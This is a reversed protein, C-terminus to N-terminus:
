AAHGTNARQPASDPGLGEDRGEALFHLLPNCGYEWVDQRTLLYGWSHFGPAPEGGQYIGQTLYHRLPSVHSKEQFQAAYWAPDFFGSDAALKEALRLEDMAAAMFPQFSTEVLRYRLALHGIAARLYCSGPIYELGKALTRLAESVQGRAEQARALLLWNWGHINFQDCMFALSTEAGSHEGLLMCALAHIKSLHYRNVRSGKALRKLGQAALDRAQAYNKQQLLFQGFYWYAKYNGSYSRLMKEGCRLAKERNGQEWYALVAVWDAELTGELRAQRFIDLAEAHCGFASLSRMYELALVQDNSRARWAAELRILGSEDRQRCLERGLKGQIMPDGPFRLEAQRLIEVKGPLGPTDALLCYDELSARDQGYRRLAPAFAEWPAYPELCELPLGDRVVIYRDNLLSIDPLPNDPLEKGGGLAELVYRFVNVHSLIKGETAHPMPWRVALRVSFMDLALDEMSVGRERMAEEQNGSGEWANFHRLGGHDGVAVVLAEPDHKLILDVALRIQEQAARAKKRYGAIFSSADPLWAREKPLHGAGFRMCFFRPQKMELALRRHLAAYTVSFDLNTAFPEFGGALKRLYRSQSFLPGALSYLRRAYAPIDFSTYDERGALPGFVFFTNDFFECAYGNERLVDLVLVSDSFNELTCNLLNNLSSVTHAKNCFTQPYDTFGHRRLFDDLPGDDIDYLRRLAEASHYSELLLLYINPKHELTIDRKFVPNYYRRERSNSFLPEKDRRAERRADLGSLLLHLILLANVPLLSFFASIGALCLSLAAMVRRRKKADPLNETFFRESMPFFVTLAATCALFDALSIGHRALEGAVGWASAWACFVAVPLGLIAGAIGAAALAIFVQGTSYFRLNMAAFSATPVLAALLIALWPQVFFETM